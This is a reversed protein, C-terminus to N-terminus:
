NFKSLIQCQVGSVTEMAAFRILSLFFRIQLAHSSNFETKFQMQGTTSPPGRRGAKRIKWAREIKYLPWVAHIQRGASVPRSLNEPLGSRNPPDTLSIYNITQARRVLGPSSRLFHM